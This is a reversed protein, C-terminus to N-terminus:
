SQLFVRVPLNMIQLAKWGYARIKMLALLNSITRPTEVYSSYVLITNAMCVYLSILNVPGKRMVKPPGKGQNVNFGRIGLNQKLIVKKTSSM